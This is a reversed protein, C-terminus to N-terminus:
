EEEEEPQCAAPVIDLNPDVPYPNNIQDFAPVLCENYAEILFCRTSEDKYYDLAAPDSCVRPECTPVGAEIVCKGDVRIGGVDGFTCDDGDQLNQCANTAAPSVRLEAGQRDNLACGEEEVLYEGIAQKERAQLHYQNNLGCGFSLRSVSLEIRFKVTHALCSQWNRVWVGRSGAVDLSDALEMAKLELRLADIDNICNLDDRGDCDVGVDQTQLDRIFAFEGEATTVEGAGPGTGGELGAYERMDTAMNALVPTLEDNNDNAEITRQVPELNRDITLDLQNCESNSESQWYYAEMALAQLRQVNSANGGNLLRAEFDDAEFIDEMADVYASARRLENRGPLPDEDVAELSAQARRAERLLQRSMAWLELGFADEANQADDHASVMGILMKDIALLTNGRRRNREGFLGDDAQDHFNRLAFAQPVELDAADERRQVETDKWAIVEALTMERVNVPLEFVAVSDQDRVRLTVTYQGPDRFVHQVENADAGVYEAVGDGDFDWEYRTIPDNPAGAQVNAVFSAANLEILEDPVDIGEIQPDVDRVEVVINISASSDEDRVTLRVNYIGDAGYRHVPQVGDTNPTGDGWEWTYGTILDAPSGPRSGSADPRFEAGQDVVYRNGNGGDPIPNVDNVVVRFQQTHAAGISDLVRLNGAFTGDDETSFATRAGNGDDFNGDGDFDWQYANISDRDAAEPARSDSADVILETGEDVVYGFGGFPVGPADNDAQPHGAAVPIAVPPRNVSFRHLQENQVGQCNAITFTMLYDGPQNVLQNEPYAQAAGGDRAIAADINSVCGQPGIVDWAVRADAVLEGDNPGNVELQVPQAILYNREGVSVNGCFDTATIRLTRGCGDELTEEAIQPAPDFNDDTSVIADPVANPNFCIGEGLQGRINVVPPTRDFTIRGGADIDAEGGGDGRLQVLMEHEGEPVAGLAMPIEFRVTQGGPVNRRLSGVENGAIIVTATIADGQPDTVDVVATGNDGNLCLRDQDGRPSIVEGAPPPVDRVQIEAEAPQSCVGFQDCVILRVTYVLGVRWNPNVFEPTPGTLDNAGPDDGYLGDNNTDWKYVRIADCPENPDRSGRGDLRVPAFGGAALPGTAYPGGAAASPPLNQIDVIVNVQDTDTRGSEDTIRLTATVAINGNDDPQAVVPRTIRAQNGDDFQGDGDFDWAYSVIRFGQNVPGDTSSRSGDFIVQQNCGTRNPNAQAIATPGRVIQLATESTSRVGFRDVVTLSVVFNGERNINLAALDAPTLADPREGRVDVQGDGNLDWEYAVIADGCAADPDASGAADLQLNDGVAIAYPGVVRGNGDRYGGAVGNPPRNGASIDLEVTRRGVEGRSDEVELSVSIPQNFTFRDYVREAQPQDGDDYQGDGDLDWRYAVIDIDPHPHESDSADFAVRGGCAAPNPEIDLSAVPERAYVNIVSTDQNSLDTSDVVELAIPWAGPGNIGADRLENWTTLRRPDAPQGPAGVTAVDSRFGDNEDYTLDWSYRKLIDGFEPTDPDFSESGDLTVSEGELIHYGREPVPTPDADATPATPPVDYRVRYEVPVSVRGASDTVRLRVITEPINGAAPVPAFVKAFEVAASNQVEFTGNNDLDWEWRVINVGNIPSSSERGDLTPNSFGTVLNIPAPDPNQVVRAIPRGALVTIDFEVVSAEGFEDVVRMRARVTLRNNEAGAPWGVIAALQEFGIQPNPGAADDFQGDGDLDWAYGQISDGCAANPEASGRADLQLPDGELVLYEDESVRAIPANNGLNVDIDVSVPPSRRGLDDVVTLTVAYSGFAGYSDTFRPRGDDPAGDGNIDWIYQAIARQPNPHFSGSGDFTVPQECGAPNPNVRAVAVPEAPYVTITTEVIVVEGDGDVVRMRIPQPQGVPLNAIVNAPIQATAGDGDDFQGDNDVDWAARVIDGCGENQDTATGRLQLPQGVEVAYPGGHAASPPVNDAPLVTVELTDTDTQAPNSNDVVQLTVTYTGARQFTHTFTAASDNSVFDPQLGLEWALGNSADVDWRFIRIEASPSPHFSNHHDFTIRGNNGGACGETVVFQGQENRPTNPGVDAIAVPPPAFITPTLVLGAMGSSISGPAWICTVSTNDCFSDRIRGFVDYNAIPNAVSLGRDQARSYYITFERVWDHNGVRELEPTGTRFGKQQSYMAYTNACGGGGPNGTVGNANLNQYGLYIGNRNGCLYDGNQYMRDQWGISGTGNRRNWGNATYQILRDYSRRLQGRTHGSYGPFAVTADNADFRHSGIWRHGLVGGGSLQFSAVNQTTRYAHGGNGRQNSILANALRYKIRNPVYVNFPSGAIEASELGIESWQHVSWDCYGASGAGNFAHYYYCGHAGGGDIQAYGVYDAFQQIFFAWETGRISNAQGVQVPTGALAPLAVALSGLHLPSSYGAAHGGAESVVWVGRGDDTGAIRNCRRESGDPNYGCRTDEDARNINTSGSGALLADHILRIVTEAYPDVNWRRDNAEEWGEPLPRGFDNITGPPLAPQHGNVALLWISFAGTIRCHHGCGSYYGSIDGRNRGTFVNLQRHLYWMVEQLTMQGATQYQYETWNVPDPSLAFDYVFLRFTGFKDPRNNCLPRVRVNINYSTDRDVEPVRFTRGIDRVTLTTGERSVRRTYDDDFNDNRNVDWTVDYTPCQANRVIGKLTIHAGEHAPHPLALNTPSFPVTIVQDTDDQAAAITPAILGALAVALM